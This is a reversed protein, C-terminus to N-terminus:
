AHVQGIHTSGARCVKEITGTSSLVPRTLQAAGGRVALTLYVSSTHKDHAAQIILDTWSRAKHVKGIKDRRRGVGDPLVLTNDARASGDVGSAALEALIREVDPFPVGREICGQM